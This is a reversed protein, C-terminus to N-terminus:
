ILTEVIFDRRPLKIRGRQYTGQVDVLRLGGVHVTTRMLSALSVDARAERIKLDINSRLTDKRHVTVGQLTVSGSLYNGRASEFQVDVGTKERARNLGARLTPEFLVTNLLILLLVAAGTLGLLTKGIRRLWPSPPKAAAPSRRPRLLSPLGLATSVLELIVEVLPLLLTLVLVIAPFVLIAFLEGLLAILLEM